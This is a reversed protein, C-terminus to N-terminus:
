DTESESGYSWIEKKYEESWYDYYKTKKLQERAEELKDRPQVLICPYVGNGTYVGNINGPEDPHDKLFIMDNRVSQLEKIICLLEDNTLENNGNYFVILEFDNSKDIKSLIFEQPNECMNYSFVKDSEIGKKAFPCISLGGLEPRKKIVRAVWEIISKEL